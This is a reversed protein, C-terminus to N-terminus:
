FLIPRKEQWSKVIYLSDCTPLGEVNQLEDAYGLDVNSNLVISKGIASGHFDINSSFVLDAKPLYVAGYFPTNSEFNVTGTLSDTGLLILSTPDELTNNVACNSDLYLSGSLYLILHGGEAIRLETNSGLSFVGTISLTVNGTIELVAGTELVFSSYEGSETIEVLVGQAYLEGRYDMGEPLLVSPLEKVEAAAAQQGLVQATGNLNIAVFPDGGPGCFADGSVVTNTAITLAGPHTGNVGIDGEININAALTLSEDAFIGVNFQSNGIQRKLVVRATKSVFVNDSLNIQGTSEVIPNEGAPTAVTILIDGITSGGPAQISPLSCTRLLDNGDWASIDGYNLEWIARELGAEALNLAAFSRYSNETVRYQGSLKTLFPMSLILMGTTLLLAVALVAGREPNYKTLNKKNM